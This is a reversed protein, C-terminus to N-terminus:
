FVKQLWVSLVLLNVKKPKDFLWLILVGLLGFCFQQSDETHPSTINARSQEKHESERYYGVNKVPNCEQNPNGQCCRKITSIGSVAPEFYTHLGTAEHDAESCRIHSVPRHVSSM